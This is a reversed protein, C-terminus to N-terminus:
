AADIEAVLITIDDKVKGGNLSVTKELLYEAMEQPSLPPAQELIRSLLQTDMDNGIDLLGDSALILMDGPEVRESIREKEVAAIMGVPLSSGKVARVEGGSKIFSPAGGTKVFEVEGTYLDVVCLDLTVFSEDSARLSLAGNVTDITTDQSFGAALLRSVLSLAAGSELAAKQGVGMGDSVMLLQKGEDLLITGSCDGCIGQINKALQARGIKVRKAGSALLRYRCRETCNGGDCSVEHVRYGYGLIRSVEEEVVQRCIAEGPCEEYQVWVDLAKDAYSTVGASEANLGGKLLAPLLERELLERETSFDSVERAINSLVESVGAMQRSLLRRSNERLTNWYNSRVYLEYLCNVVALLEKLHPCRKRFNEPVDKMVAAGQEEVAKFLSLVGRYTHSYDMEWCIEKMTCQSCLRRSLHNLVTKINEEESVEEEEMVDELSHSLDRFIWGANRLRRVSLRLMRESREEKASKLASSSFIVQLYKYFRHPLLFFLAAAGASAGLSASIQSGSFLYLALILNGLLFGMITGLRGFNGFVGALLGSFAYTAIATPAVVASLSPVIGVLAGCAAGAGGGGLYAVVLIFFRSIADQVSLDGIQWGALGGVVGMLVIFLCITEDPSFRRSIELREVAGLVVLFVLSLGAAFVSEFISILLLYNSFEGLGLVLGKSVAVSALVMGPVVLWQKREDVGYLFFVAAVLLYIAAYVFLEQGRMISFLGLLMPLLYLLGQRRQRVSIAALFAPGFPYLGGLVQSRAFLFGSLALIIMMWPLSLTRSQSIPPAQPREAAPPYFRPQPSAISERKFPYIHPNESVMIVEPKDEWPKNWFLAYPPNFLNYREPPPYVTPLQFCPLDKQSLFLSPIGKGGM